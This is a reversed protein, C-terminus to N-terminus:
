RARSALSPPMPLLSNSAQRLFVSSSFLITSCRSIAVVSSWTPAVGVNKTLPLLNVPAGVTSPNLFINDLRAAFDHLRQSQLPDRGLGRGVGEGIAPGATRPPNLLPRSSAKGCDGRGMVNLAL